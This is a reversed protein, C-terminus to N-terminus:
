NEQKDSADVFDDVEIDEQVAEGQVHVQDEAREGELDNEDCEQYEVLSEPVEQILVCGNDGIEAGESVIPDSTTIRFVVDSGITIGRSRLTQTGDYVRYGDDNEYGILRGKFAKKCMKRRKQKPVHAYCISGIVRLHSIRPKRGLWLEYQSKEEVRSSGTRNLVYAITNVLEAWLVQPLDGGSYMMSRAAEVLTRNERESYGNQEPTYPM